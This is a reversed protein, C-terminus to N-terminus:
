SEETFEVDLLALGIMMRDRLIEILVMKSRVDSVSDQARAVTLEIFWPGVSLTMRLRFRYCRTEGARAPRTTHRLWGSHIGFLAVGQANSLTFGILPAEYDTDFRVRLHIDIWAGELLQGPHPRTGEMVLFDIIAAGGQGFRYENPNYLPNEACRDTTRTDALFAALTTLGADPPPAEAAIAPTTLDPPAPLKGTTLLESYVEAIRRPEGVEILHGDHLLVAEDCFYTVSSMDHTVLLITKGMEKFTRIRRFCKEQFKVDGVAMAEDIVLIDPDVHIAAAFAVRMFMGSSYTRVPQDFYEGIDAFEIVEALRHEIEARDLGMILANTIVNERGTLDPNFGAGLELLAAVRGNVECTGSTPRLVGCIIQLLTSKGSGNRGLIGMMTGRRITLNIDALAWHARHTTRRFPHLLELLREHRSNFLRYKKSLGTVQIAPSSSSM